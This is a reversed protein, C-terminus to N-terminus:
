HDTTKDKDDDEEGKVIDLYARYLAVGRRGGEVLVNTNNYHLYGVEVCVEGMVAVTAAIAAAMAPSAVPEEIAIVGVEGTSELTTLIIGEIAEAFDVIAEADGNGPFAMPLDSVMRPTSGARYSRLAGERIDVVCVGM